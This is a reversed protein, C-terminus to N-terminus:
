KATGRLRALEGELTRSLLEDIEERSVPEGDSVRDPPTGSSRLGAEIQEVIWDPGRRLPPKSADDDM